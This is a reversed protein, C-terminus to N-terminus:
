TITPRTNKTEQTTSEYSKISANFSTAITSSPAYAVSLEYKEVVMTPREEMSTAVLETPNAM